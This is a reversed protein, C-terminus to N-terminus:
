ILAKVSEPTDVQRSSDEEPKSSDGGITIVTGDTERIEVRPNKVGGAAAAKFYRALKRFTVSQPKNVMKVGLRTPVCM